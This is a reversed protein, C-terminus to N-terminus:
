SGGIREKASAGSLSHSLNSVDGKMKGSRMESNAKMTGSHDPAYDSRINTSRPGSKTVQGSKGGKKDM